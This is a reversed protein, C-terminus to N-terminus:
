PYIMVKGTEGTWFLHYAEEIRDLPFRHTIVKALDVGRERVFRLNDAFEGVGFYECGILSKEQGILDRSTQLELTQRSHGVIMVRGDAAVMEIAQRQAVPHGSAEVILDPGDSVHRRVYAVPDASRADVAVAGFETALQLRYPIVDVAYVQAIGLPRLAIIAGLGIPGAGMVCAATVTMPTAQARRLAHMTTGLVDLLMTALDLDMAPDVPLLCREPVLVYGAFAGDHSFGIMREKRLCAGTEGRRCMRCHGCYAVLYIAGRTGPPITTDSGTAVVIGSGEHGPTVSSGDSWAHRDSGCIACAHVKVLIEGPGPVPVAKEEIAIRGGGLFRAARMQSPIERIMAM